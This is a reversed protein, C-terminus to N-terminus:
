SYFKYMYFQDFHLSYKNNIIDYSIVKGSGDNINSISTELINCAFYADKSVNTLTFANEIIGDVFMGDALSQTYNASYVPRAKDRVTVVIERYKKGDAFTDSYHDGAPSTIHITYAGQETAYFNDGVFHAYQNNSSVVEYKYGDGIYTDFFVSLDIYNPKAVDATRDVLGATGKLTLTPTALLGNGTVTFTKSGCDGSITIQGTRTGKQSPKFKV